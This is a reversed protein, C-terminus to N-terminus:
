LMDLFKICNDIMIINRVDDSTDNDYRLDLRRNALDETLRLDLYNFLRHPQKLEDQFQRIFDDWQPTLRELWDAAQLGRRRDRLIGDPVVGSMSRRILSRDQGATKDFFCDYPLRMCFEVVRKDGTPDRKCVATYCSRKADASYCQQLYTPHLMLRRAEKDRLMPKQTIGLAHLNKEVGHKALYEPKVQGTAQLTKNFSFISKFYDGKLANLLKKRSVNIGRSYAKVDQAFSIWRLGMFHEFLIDRISGYSVTGNGFSGGLLVKCGNGSAEHFIETTWYSNVISKYPQEYLALMQDAANISNKGAADIFHTEMNPYAAQIIKVLDTEDANWQRSVWNTFGQLPVSTYTHLQTNRDRLISAATCAVSSSDLGGSLMVGVEGDARLRCSVADYYIERFAEVYDTKKLQKDPRISRPDWYVNNSIDDETVTLCSAPLIYGVDKYITSGPYLEQRLDNMALFHVLYKEDLTPKRGDGWPNILPKILTSFYISGGNRRYYLLRLGMHDRFLQVWRRKKDYVFFAFDGLLYNTCESGWKKYAEFIIQGDSLENTLRLGLLGVLEERNDIIADCVFYLGNCKDYYPLKEFHSEETIYQNNFGLAVNGDILATQTDSKKEALESGMNELIAPDAPRGDLNVFGYLISM